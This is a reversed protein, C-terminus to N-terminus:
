FDQPTAGAAPPGGVILTGPRFAMWAFAFYVGHEVPTLRTGTLPGSVATGSVDWVTGSERDVIENKKRRFRVRQSDIEASFVGVSGTERSDAMRPADLPSLGEKSYFLVITRGGFKDELVRNQALRSVPYARYETGDRIVVLKEMPRLGTERVQRVPM